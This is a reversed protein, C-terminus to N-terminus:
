SALDDELAALGDIIRILNLRVPENMDVLRQRGETQAQTILHETRALQDRHAAPVRRHDPLQRLDPLSAYRGPPGAARAASMSMPSM